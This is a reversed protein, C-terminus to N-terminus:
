LMGCVSLLECMTLFVVIWVQKMTCHHLNPIHVLDAVVGVRATTSVHIHCSAIQGPYALM